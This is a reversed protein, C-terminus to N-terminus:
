SLVEAARKRWATLARHMTCASCKCDNQRVTDWDQLWQEAAELVARTEHFMWFLDNSRRGHEANDLRKLLEVVTPESV